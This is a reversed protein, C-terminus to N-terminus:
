KYYGVCRVTQDHSSAHSKHVVVCLLPFAVGLFEFLADSLRSFFYGNRRLRNQEQSGISQKECGLQGM